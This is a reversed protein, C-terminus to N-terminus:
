LNVVRWNLFASRSLKLSTIKVFLSNTKFHSLSISTRKVAMENEGKKKKKSRMKTTSILTAFFPVNKVFTFHNSKTKPTAVVYFHHNSIIVQQLFDGATSLAIAM